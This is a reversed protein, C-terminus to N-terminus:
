GPLSTAVVAKSPTTRWCGDAAVVAAVRLVGESLEFLYNRKKREREFEGCELDFWHRLRAMHFGLVHGPTGLLGANQIAPTPSHQPTMQMFPQAGSPRCLR